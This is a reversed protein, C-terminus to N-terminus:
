GGVLRHDIATQVEEILAAKITDLEEAKALKLKRAGLPEILEVGDYPTVEITIDWLTAREGIEIEVACGRYTFTLSPMIHVVDLLSWAVMMTRVLNHPDGRSIRCYLFSPEVSRNASCSSLVAGLSECPM